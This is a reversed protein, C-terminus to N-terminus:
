MYYPLSYLDLLGRWYDLWGIKNKNQKVMAISELLETREESQHYNFGTCNDPDMFLHKQHYVQKGGSIIKYEGVLLDDPFIFSRGVIPEYLSNWEYAEILSLKKTKTNFKIVEYDHGSATMLDDAKNLITIQRSPLKAIDFLNTKHMYWNGAVKKM